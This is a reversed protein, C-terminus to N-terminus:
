RRLVAVAEVHAAYLFQDVPTVGELRYGGDVLIRVDRALTAPNCSVYALLPPGARAIQEVQARAGARPPDLVLTDFDGLEQPALPDRYLDRVKAEIPKLGRAQRAAASLAAIAGANADFASVRAIRALAFTLTGIGCFLEVIRRGRAAATVLLTTIAAEGEAAAQVFAGPPPTAPIGALHLAPTAAEAVIEGDVAIRAIGGAAVLRGLRAVSAAGAPQGGTEAAVDLGTATELVTLRTARRGLAAAVAQLQPLAAVIAPRLVPCQEIALVDHSRARHYGIVPAAGAEHDVAFVARRRTGPTIRVLPAIQPSLGQRRFAESVLGTKWAGYDDAGLHQATCGGCAGFHPCIAHSSSTRTPASNRDM